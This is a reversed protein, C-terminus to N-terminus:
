DGRGAWAALSVQPGLENFGGANGTRKDMQIGPRATQCVNCQSRRAWNMNSCMPCPWDDPRCAYVAVGTVIGVALLGVGSCAPIATVFALVCSFLSGRGGGRGGGGRGRGGGKPYSGMPRATGCRNCENRFRCLAPGHIACGCWSFPFPSQPPYCPHLLLCEPTGCSFNVNGCDANPCAWDGEKMFAPPPPGRGGGGRGRGRGRGRGAGGDSFEPPPLLGMGPTANPNFGQQGFGRGMGPKYGPPPEM